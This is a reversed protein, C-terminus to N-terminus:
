ALIGHWCRDSSLVIVVIWLVIFEVGLQTGGGCVVAVIEESHRGCGALGLLEVIFKSHRLSNNFHFRNSLCIRKSKSVRLWNYNCFLLLRLVVVVIHKSHL